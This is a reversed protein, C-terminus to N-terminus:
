TAVPVLGGLLEEYRAVMVDSSWSDRAYGAARRRLVPNARLAALANEISVCLDAATPASQFILSNIEPIAGATQESLLVPTGCAMAEQASVPFAERGPLVLLDAAGYYARLDAPRVPALVRLNPLAWSGPDVDAPRGILLWSWEPRAEIVRRLLLLGKKEKFQGVFVLLPQDVGVSLRDRLAMRESEGVYSFLACRFGNPVFASPRRLKLRSEFYRQVVDSLFVVQDAGRLVAFGFTAYALTQLGRYLPNPYPVNAIHQTILVPRRIRRAEVFAAVNIAYLCDHMHIVGAWAVERRLTSLAGPGPLPYPFGLREIANWVRIPVDGASAAHPMSSIDGAIWRVEHGRSRYGDALTAAITEIGGVHEPYYNSLLLIRM